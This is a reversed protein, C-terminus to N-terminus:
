LLTLDPARLTPSNRVGTRLSDFNWTIDSLGGNVVRKKGVPNRIRIWQNRIWCKLSFVSGSWHGFNSFTAASFYNEFQLKCMLLGRMLTFRQIRILLWFCYGSGRWLLQPPGYVSKILLKSTWISGHLTRYVLPPQLDFWKSSSCSGFGCWLPKDSGSGCPLLFFPDGGGGGGGTKTGQEAKKFNLSFCM